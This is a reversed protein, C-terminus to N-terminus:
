GPIIPPALSGFRRIIKASSQITTKSQIQSSRDFAGVQGLYGEAESELIPWRSALDSGHGLALGRSPARKTRVVLDPM